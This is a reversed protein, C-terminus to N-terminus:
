VEVAEVKEVQVRDEKKISSVTETTVGSEGIQYSRVDQIVKKPPNALVYEKKSKGGAKEKLFKEDM